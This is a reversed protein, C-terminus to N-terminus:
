HFSVNPLYIRTFGRTLATDNIDKSLNRSIIYQTHKYLTVVSDM